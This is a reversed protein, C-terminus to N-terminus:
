SVPQTSDSRWRRVLGLAEYEDFPTVLAAECTAHVAVPGWVITEAEIVVVVVDAATISGCVQCTM